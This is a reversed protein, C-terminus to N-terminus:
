RKPLEQVYDAQLFTRRMEPSQSCIFRFECGGYNGCSSPNMPLDKGTDLHKRTRLKVEEIFQITESYWEDLQADTRFTMGREFRSFGVAIQAADIIVGKVPAQYVIRGVFPYMSMQTNPSFQDFYRPTITSGTTKQDVVYEFGSYLGLRDILGYFFNDGDVKLKFPYEVAPEGNPLHVIEIPDEKFHETYWVITRILNERTKSNHPSNWPAGGGCGKGGCRTCPYAALNDPHGGIGTGECEICTEYEWTAILAEHVVAQLAEERGMGLALHKYFHELATAYHGGFILDASKSRSTWGEIKKYQYKRLCTQALSISNASWIYQEGSPLFSSIPEERM